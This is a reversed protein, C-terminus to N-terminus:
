DVKVYMNFTCQTCFRTLNIFIYKIHQTSLLVFHNGELIESEDIKTINQQFKNALKVLIM